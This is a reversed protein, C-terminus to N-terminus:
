GGAQLEFSVYVWPVEEVDMLAARGPAVEAVAAIIKQAQDTDICVAKLYRDEDDREYVVFVSEGLPSKITVSPGPDPIGFARRAKEIAAPISPARYTGDPNTPM